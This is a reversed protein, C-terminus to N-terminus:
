LNHQTISQPRITFQNCLVSGNRRDMQSLLIHYDLYISNHKHVYWYKYPHPVYLFYATDASNSCWCMHPYGCAVCLGCVLPKCLKWWASVLLVSEQIGPSGDVDCLIYSFLSSCLIACRWIKEWKGAQVDNFRGFAIKLPDINWRRLVVFTNSAPQTHPFM